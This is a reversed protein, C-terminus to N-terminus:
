LSPQKTMVLSSKKRVLSFAYFHFVHSPSRMGIVFPQRPVQEIFPAQTVEDLRLGSFHANAVAEMVSDAEVVVTGPATGTGTGTGANKKVMSGLM